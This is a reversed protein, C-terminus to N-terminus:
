GTGPATRTNSTAASAQHIGASSSADWGSAARAAARRSGLRRSAAGLADASVRSRVSASIAETPARSSRACSNWGGAASGRHPVAYEAVDVAVERRELLHERAHGALADVTEDADAVDDAVTRCRPLADREDSFRARRDHEAVVVSRADVADVRRVEVVVRAIRHQPGLAHEARVVSRPELRQRHDRM